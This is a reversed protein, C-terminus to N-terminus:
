LSRSKALSRASRLLLLAASASAARIAAVTFNDSTWPCSFIALSFATAPSVSAACAAPSTPTALATAADCATAAGCIPAASATSTADVRQELTM